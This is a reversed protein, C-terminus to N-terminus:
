NRRAFHVTRRRPRQHARRRAPTGRVGRRPRHRHSTRRDAPERHGLDHCAEEIREDDTVVVVADLRKAELCRQHVHWLLPKDGLQALPKGPFRSAGWRCPIVAIHRRPPTSPPAATTAAM